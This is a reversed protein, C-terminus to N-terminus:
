FQSSFDFPLRPHSISNNVIVSSKLVRSIDLSPNGSPCQPLPFSRLVVLAMSTKEQSDTGNTFRFRIEFRSNNQFFFFFYRIREECSKAQTCHDVVTQFEAGEELHWGCRRAVLDKLANIWNKLHNEGEHLHVEDEHVRPYPLFVVRGRSERADANITRKKM